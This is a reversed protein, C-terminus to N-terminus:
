PRRRLAALGSGADSSGRGDLLSEKATKRLQVLERRLNRLVTVKEDHSLERCHVVVEPYRFVSQPVTSAKKRDITTM